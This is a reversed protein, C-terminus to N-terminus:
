SPVLFIGLSHVNISSAASSLISVISFQIQSTQSCPPTQHNDALFRLGWRKWVSPDKTVEDEQLGPHKWPAPPLHQGRWSGPLSDQNIRALWLATM